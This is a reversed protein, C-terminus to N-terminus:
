REEPMPVTHILAIKWDDNERRFLISTPASITEQQGDMTYTQELVFTILGVTGWDSEQPDTMESHVESVTNRLRSLYAEIAARGRTWGRTIEDVSQADETLMSGLSEIDMADLRELLARVEQEMSSTQAPM